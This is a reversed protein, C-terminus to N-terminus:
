GPPRAQAAQRLTDIADDVRQRLGELRAQFKEREPAGDREALLQHSINLGAMIACRDVGPLQSSTAVVRMKEDLYAAAATVGPSEQPTCAVTFERQMIRVTVSNKQQGPNIQSPPVQGPTMKAAVKTM